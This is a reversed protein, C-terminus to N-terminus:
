AGNHKEILQRAHRISPNDKSLSVGSEWAQPVCSITTLAVYAGLVSAAIGLEVFEFDWYVRLKKGRCADFDRHPM